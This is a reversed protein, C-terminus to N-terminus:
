PQPADRPPWLVALDGVRRGSRIEHVAVEGSGLGVPQPDGVDGLVGGAFGLDVAGHHRPVKLRRTTPQDMSERGVADSTVLAKPVAISPQLGVAPSVTIWLSWPVWNVEQANVRRATSEASNGDIPETPSQKSLAITSDNQGRICTSSPSRLRQCVRRSSALAIKSYRSIQCLRCRRCLESPMSVGM